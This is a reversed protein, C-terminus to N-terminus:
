SLYHSHVCGSSLFHLNINYSVVSLLCSLCCGTESDSALFVGLSFTVYTLVVPSDSVRHIPPIKEAKLTLCVLM